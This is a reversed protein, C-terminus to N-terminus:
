RVSVKDLPIGAFLIRMDAISDIAPSYRHQPPVYDPQTAGPDVPSTSPASDASPKAVSPTL